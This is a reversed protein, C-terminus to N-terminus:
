ITGNCNTINFWIAYIYTLDHNNSEDLTKARDMELANRSAQLVYISLNAEFVQESYKVNDVISSYWTNTNCRDMQRVVTFNDKRSPGSQTCNQETTGTQTQCQQNQNQGKENLNDNTVHLQGAKYYATLGRDRYFKLEAEQKHTPDYSLKIDLRKM